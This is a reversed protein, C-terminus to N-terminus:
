RNLTYDGLYAGCLGGLSAKTRGTGCRLYDPSCIALTEVKGTFYLNLTLMPWFTAKMKGLINTPSECRLFGLLVYYINNWVAAWVTQDFVVKAPVVWWDECLQYYYHSLSGHLSYGVIGSRFMRSRDFEFQPKGEYCQAIWEGLSYVVGSIVMKALVPNTKLAEEYASWNHQPAYRLLEYLTWGSHFTLNSGHGNDSTAFPYM